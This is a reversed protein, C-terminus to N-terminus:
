EKTLRLLDIAVDTTIGHNSCFKKVTLAKTLYRNHAHGHWEVQGNSFEYEWSCGDTHNWQCLMKHLTIALKHEDPLERFAKDAAELKDAEARLQAIKDTHDSM